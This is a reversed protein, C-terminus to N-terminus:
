IAQKIDLAMCQVLVSIFYVIQILLLMPISSPVDPILLQNALYKKADHRSLLKM